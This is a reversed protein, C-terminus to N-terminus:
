DCFRITNSYGIDNLIKSAENIDGPETVTIKRIEIDQLEIVLNSYKKQLNNREKILKKEDKKLRSYLTKYRETEKQLSDRETEVVNLNERIETSMYYKMQNILGSTIDPKYYGLFIALLLVGIIIYYKNKITKMM